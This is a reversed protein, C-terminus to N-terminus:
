SEKDCITIWQCDRCVERLKGARIIREYALASLERWDIEAPVTLGMRELTRRDIASVKEDHDCRDGIRHSCASCIEDCGGTLFVRLDDVPAGCVEDMHRVFDENYGKGEYFRMCLVHHPRLKLESM